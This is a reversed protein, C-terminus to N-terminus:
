FELSDNLYYRYSEILNTNFLALQNKILDDIFDDNYSLIGNIGCSKYLYFMQLARKEKIFKDDIFTKVKKYIDKVTQIEDYKNDIFYQDSLGFKTKIYKKIKDVTEKVEITTTWENILIGDLSKLKFIYVYRFNTFEKFNSSFVYKKDISAKINLKDLLNKQNTNDQRINYLKSLTYLITNINGKLQKFIIQIYLKSITSEDFSVDMEEFSGNKTIRFLIYESDHKLFIYRNMSNINIDLLNQSSLFDLLEYPDIFGYYNDAFKIYNDSAFKNTFLEKSYIDFIRKANSLSPEINLVEVIKGNSIFDLSTNYENYIPYLYLAMPTFTYTYQKNLFQPRITNSFHMFCLEESGKNKDLFSSINDQLSIKKNLTPYKRLENLFENYNYIKM